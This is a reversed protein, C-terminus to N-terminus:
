AEGAESDLDLEAVEEGPDAAAEDEVAPQNKAYRRALRRRENEPMMSIQRHRICILLESSRDSRKGAATKLASQADLWEVADTPLRASIKTSEEGM